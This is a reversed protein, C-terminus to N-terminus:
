ELFGPPVGRAVHGHKGVYCGVMNSWIFRHQQMDKLKKYAHLSAYAVGTTPDRYRAPQSSIPCQETVYKPPKYAKKVNYFVSYAEKAAADIDDFEALIVVNRTSIVEEIPATSGLNGEIHITQPQILGSSSTMQPIISISQDLPAQNSAQLAHHEVLPKSLEPQTAPLSVVITDGPGTPNSVTRAAPEVKLQSGIQGSLQSALDSSPPIQQGDKVAIHAPRDTMAKTASIDGSKIGDRMKEHEIDAVPHVLPGPGKITEAKVHEPVSANSSSTIPAMQSMSTTNSASSRPRSQSVDLSILSATVGGNLGPSSMGTLPASLSQITPVAAIVEEPPLAPSDQATSPNSNGPTPLVFSHSGIPTMASVEQITKPKPGRKKWKTADNGTDQTPFTSGRYTHISSYFTVVPGDLKRDKLAALRAAQEEARRAEMAEWKNLSKANRRENKAAELLRDAQTLDRPATAQKVKSKEDRVAKNKLRQEENEQLREMVSHRHAVTQKRLSTRGSADTDVPLWSFRERRKIPKPKDPARHLATPDIKPKKRIGTTTTLAM